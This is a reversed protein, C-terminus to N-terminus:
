ESAVKQLWNSATDVMYRYLKRGTEASAGSLDGIVGNNSIDSTMWGSSVQPFPKCHTERVPLEKVLAPDLYMVLSTELSAAHVDPYQLGPFFSEVVGPGFFDGGLLNLNYVSVGYARRLDFTISSLLDSNGGHSNFFLIKKVGHQTLSSVIDELVAILTTARLTITGTFDLHEPSKGYPLLPLFFAPFDQGLNERVGDVIHKLILSDTGTPLHPGHQENSGIPLIAIRNQIQLDAARTTSIEQLSVVQSDPQNM